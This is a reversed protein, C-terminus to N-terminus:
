ELFVDHLGRTKLNIFMIILVNLDTTDEIL